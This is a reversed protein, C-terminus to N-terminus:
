FEDIVEGYWHAPKQLEADKATSSTPSSTAEATSSAGRQQENAKSANRRKAPTQRPQVLATTARNSRAPRPRAHDESRPHTREIHATEIHASKPQAEPMPAPEVDRALRIDVPHTHIATLKRAKENSQQTPESFSLWAGASAATLAVALIAVRVGKHGKKLVSRPPRERSPNALLTRSNQARRKPDRELLSALACALDKPTKSPAEPIPATTIQRILAATSPADFPPRGHLLEALVIGLAWCDSAVSEQQGSFLEPAMYPMSGVLEHSATVRSSVQPGHDIALGLDILKVPMPQKLDVAINSPKIDRHLIGAEHIDALAKGTQSIIKRVISFSPHPHDALYDRLTQRRLYEMVLYPGVTDDVGFDTVQVVRPSDIRALAQAERRFRKLANDSWHDLRILKLAFTKGLEVHRAEFVCGVGGHGISRIVEYREGIRTGTRVLPHEQM